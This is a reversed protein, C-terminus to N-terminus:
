FHLLDQIFQSIGIRNSSKQSRSVGASMYVLKLTCSPPHGMLFPIKINPALFHVHLESRDPGLYFNELKWVADRYVMDLNLESIIKSRMQSGKLNSRFHLCFHSIQNLHWNEWLVMLWLFIQLTGKIAKIYGSCIVLQCQVGIMSREYYLHM